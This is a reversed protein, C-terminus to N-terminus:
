EGEIEGLYVPAIKDPSIALSIKQTNSTPSVFHVDHHDSVGDSERM